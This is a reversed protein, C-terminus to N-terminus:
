PTSKKEPQKAQYQALTKNANAKEPESAKEVALTQFEIAKAVDGRTFYVRALTDLIDSRNGKAIENARLAATLAVDLDPNEFPLEPDVMAWAILNLINPNDKYEKKELLQRYAASTNAATKPADQPAPKAPSAAAPPAPDKAVGKQARYEALAKKNENDADETEVAKTQFEIAKDLDGRLSHVRALTSLVAPNPGTIENARLAAKLALDLCGKASRAEPTALELAMHYLLDANDKQSAYLEEALAIAEPYQKKQLLVMFKAQKLEAMKPHDQILKDIAALNSSSVLEALQAQIDEAEATEAQEAAAFKQADFTGAVVEKLVVDLKMPHGIWAIKSDKGVVFTCPIGGQAAATLWAKTMMGNADDMAVRYQMKDGMKKVFAPVGSADQEMCNMGIITVEPNKKQLENLHPIAEACPGCWTAWFEVIYIKGPEFKEVAQGQIWKSVALAPAPDGVHLTAKPAVEPEAAEAVTLKQQLQQLKPAIEAPVKALQDETSVPGDFLVKGAQDKALLHEEQGPKTTLTLTHEGDALARTYTANDQKAESGAETATSGPAVSPPAAEEAGLSCPIALGIVVSLIVRQLKRNMM